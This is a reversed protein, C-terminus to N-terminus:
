VEPTPQRETPTLPAGFIPHQLLPTPPASLAALAVLTADSAPLQCSQPREQSAAGAASWGAVYTQRAVHAAAAEGLLSQTSAPAMQVPAAAQVPPVAPVPPVTPVPPPPSPAASASAAKAEGCMALLALSPATVSDPASGMQGPCGSTEPTTPAEAPRPRKAPPSPIAAAASLLSLPCIATPAPRPCIAATRASPGMVCQIGLRATSLPLGADKARALALLHPGGRPQRPMGSDTPAFQAKLAM